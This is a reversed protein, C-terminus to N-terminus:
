VFAANGVTRPLCIVRYTEVQVGGGGRSCVEFLEKPDIETDDVGALVCECWTEGMALWRLPQVGGDGALVLRRNAAFMEKALELMDVGPLVLGNLEMTTLRQMRPIVTHRIFPLHGAEIPLTLRELDDCQLIAENLLTQTADTCGACPRVHGINIARWHTGTAQFPNTGRRHTPTEEDDGDDDFEEENAPQLHAGGNGAHDVKSPVCTAMDVTLSSLNRHPALQRILQTVDDTLIEVSLSEINTTNNFLEVDVPGGRNNAFAVHQLKSPDLLKTLDIKRSRTRGPLPLFGNGLRLTTLALRDGDHLRRKEDFLDILKGLSTATKSILRREVSITLDELDPSTALMEAISPLRSTAMTYPLNELHLKQMGRRNPLVWDIEAPIGNKVMTHLVVSLSQMHPIQELQNTLITNYESQDQTSPERQASDRTRPKDEIVPICMDIERLNSMKELAASFDVWEQTVYRRAELCAINLTRTYRVYPSQSLRKLHRKHIAFLSVHRYLLPTFINCFQTSVLCLAHLTSLNYQLQDGVMLWIHDGVFPM